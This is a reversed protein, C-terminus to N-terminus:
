LEGLRKLVNRVTTATWRARGRPTLEGDLTLRRAIAALSLGASRYNRIISYVRRAFEDAKAQIVALFLARGNEMATEALDKPSRRRVGRDEAAKLAERTRKSIMEREYQAM